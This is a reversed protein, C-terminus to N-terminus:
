NKEMWYLTPRDKPDQLNKFMALMPLHPSARNCPADVVTAAQPPPVTWNSIARYCGLCQFHHIVRKYVCVHTYIYM